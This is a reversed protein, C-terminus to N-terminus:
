IKLVQLLFTMLQLGPVRAFKEPWGFSLRLCLPNSTILHFHWQRGGPVSRSGMGVRGRGGEGERGRSWGGRGRRGVLRGVRGRGLRGGRSGSEREWWTQWVLSGEGPGHAASRPSPARPRGSWPGRGGPGSQAALPVGVNWMWVPSVLHSLQPFPATQCNWSATLSKLWWSDRIWSCCASSIAWSTSAKLFFVASIWFSPHTKQISRGSLLWFSGWVNVMGFTWSLVHPPWQRTQSVVIFSSLFSTSPYLQSSNWSFQSSLLLSNTRSLGPRAPFSCVHSFSLVGPLFFTNWSEIKIVYVYM